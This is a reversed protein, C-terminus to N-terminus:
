HQRKDRSPTPSPTPQAGSSSNKYFLVGHERLNVVLANFNDALQRNTLLQGILGQGESAKQILGRVNELTKQLDAAADKATGMTQNAKDVADQASKTIGPLKTSADALNLSTTKFGALMDSVNKQNSGSLIGNNIGSIAKQAEDELASLKKVAPGLEESLEAIGATHLGLIVDGPQYALKEDYGPDDPDNAKPDGPDYIRPNILPKTTDISQYVQKPDGPNFKSPDFGAKTQVAVYKDGLLGSSSVKFFFGIPIKIEEDIKLIVRVTGLSSSLVPKEAVFGVGAGGLVVVSNKLLGDADPLDVVLTYYKKFLGQKGGLSFELVMAGIIVLGICLFLGVKVELGNEKTSTKM